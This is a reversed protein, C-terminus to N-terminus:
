NLHIKRQQVASITEANHPNITVARKYMEVAYQDKGQRRYMDGLSLFAMFHHNNRRCTEEYFYISTSVDGLAEYLRGLNFYPEAYDPKDDISKQYLGIVYVIKQTDKVKQGQAYESNFVGREELLRDQALRNLAQKIQPDEFYADGLKNFALWRATAANNDLQNQWLSVSNKWVLTRQLTTEVCVFLVGTLAILIAYFIFNNKKSYELLREAGAAVVMCLGASPLYMFRDAVCDITVHFRLLFFISGLYFCLAFVFLRERRRFWFLVCIAVFVIVNSLYAPNQISVPFPSPYFLMTEGPVFFKMLYFNFSWIWVLVDNLSHIKLISANSYYSVWAVPVLFVAYYIKNFVDRKTIKRLYYWDCLLLILPLSLAMSKSLISLVGLAVSLSLLRKRRSDLYKLYTLVSMLYFVSYLVDKRETVWAVSEVHLPHIGFILAALSSAVVSLGLRRSLMLVLATVIMHLLVNNLHFYFPDFGFFKHEIAFTLTTLPVYTHNVTTTFIDKIHAWDLSAVSRNELFHVDDDWNVFDNALSPLYCCFVVALVTLLLFRSFNDSFFRPSFVM